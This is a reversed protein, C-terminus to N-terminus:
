PIFVNDNINCNITYDYMDYQTYNEGTKNMRISKLSNKDFEIVFSTFIIRRRNKTNIKPTITITNGNKDIQAAECLTVDAIPNNCIIDRLVNQLVNFLEMIKGKAISKEGDEMLTYTNGDMLLMDKKNNLRICMKNPYKYYFYGDTSTDKTLLANHETKIVKASVTNINQAKAGICQFICIILLVINKYNVINM